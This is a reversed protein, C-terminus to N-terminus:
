IGYYLTYVTTTYDASSGSSFITRSTREVSVKDTRLNNFCYYEPTLKGIPNGRGTASTKDKQTRELRSPRVCISPVLPQRWLTGVGNM